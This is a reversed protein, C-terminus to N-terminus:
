TLSEMTRMPDDATLGIDADNMDRAVDNIAKWTEPSLTITKKIRALFQALTSASEKDRNRQPIEAAIEMEMIKSIEEKIIQALQTKTIKGEWMNRGKRQAASKKAAYMPWESESGGGNIFSDKERSNLVQKWKETAKEQSGLGANNRWWQEARKEIDRLQAEAEGKAFQARQEAGAKWRKDAAAQKKMEAAQALKREDKSAQAIKMGILQVARVRDEHRKWAMDAESEKHRNSVYYEMRKTADELSEIASNMEAQVSGPEGDAMSRGSEITRKTTDQAHTLEDPHMKGGIFPLYVENTAVATTAELEEKIIQKLQVKTIKM